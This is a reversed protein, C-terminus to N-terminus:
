LLSNFPSGGVQLAALYRKRGQDLVMAGGAKVGPAVSVRSDTLNAFPLAACLGRKSWFLIREEDKSWHQGPVVGYDALVALKESTYAYITQDTGVVLAADHPALMTVQGSVLFFDSDLNFLHYGLPQSIWVVTQNESAFYQAAYIRGGWHQIPGVGLPLTSLLSPRLVGAADYFKADSLLTDRWLLITHDSQIIGSDVGNSFYVDNNVECWHMPAPNLGSRLVVSTAPGAMAVLAGGVVAYLRRFDLTAYAATFAGALTKIYGSRKKIAGTESVDVNDAQVLWDLGLRLPDTVNNLGRWAKVVEM